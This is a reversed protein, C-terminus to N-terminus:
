CINEGDPPVRDLPTGASWCRVVCGSALDVVRRDYAMLYEADFVARAEVIALAPSAAQIQSEGVRSPSPGVGRWDYENASRTGKRFRVQLLFRGCGLYYDKNEFVVRRGERRVQYAAVISMGIVWALSLYAAVDVIWWFWSM